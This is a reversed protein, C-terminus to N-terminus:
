QDIHQEKVSGEGDQLAGDGELEEILNLTNANVFKLLVAAPIDNLFRMLEDVFDPKAINM